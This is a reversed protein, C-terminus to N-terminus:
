GLGKNLNNIECGVLIDVPILIKSDLSVHTISSTEEEREM